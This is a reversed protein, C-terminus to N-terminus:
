QQPKGSLDTGSKVGTHPHTKLSVGAATVDGKATVDGDAAVNGSTKVNGTIEVDGTIKIGGDAVLNVTGGSPLTATLAHSAINYALRAGDSFTLSHAKPDNEPQPHVACYLGLLVVGSETDGEPCILLCQEGESPASWSRVEGARWSIWPLPLTILDGTEVTCTGHEADVSQIRGLRLLDGAIQTPSQHTDM